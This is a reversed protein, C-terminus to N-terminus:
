PMWAKARRRAGGARRAGMGARAASIEYGGGRGDFKWVVEDIRHGFFIPGDVAERWLAPDNRVFVRDQAILWAQLDLDFRRNSAAAEHMHQRLLSVPWDLHSELSRLFVEDPPLAWDRRQGNVIEALDRILNPLFRKEIHDLTEPRALERSSVLDLGLRKVYVQRDLLARDWQSRDWLVFTNVDWTFFFQVNAEEAKDHANKVEDSDFAGVGGPLKVEGTLVVRNNPGYVRLDKRARKSRSSGMGEVRAEVFPCTERFTAFFATMATAMKGCFDVENISETALAGM